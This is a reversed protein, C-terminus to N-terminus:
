GLAPSRAPGVQGARTLGSQCTSRRECASGYGWDVLMLRKRQRADPVASNDGCMRRRLHIGNRAAQAGAHIAATDGTGLAVLPM